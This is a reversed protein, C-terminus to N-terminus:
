IVDFVREAADGRALMEMAEGGMFGHVYCEGVLLYHNGCPRLCFPMKGGFLVCVIDGVNLVKPGLLFYGKATRAFVRHNSAGNAARSWKFYDGSVAVEHIASAADDPHRLVKTLYAAGNALWESSPIEHYPRTDRSATSICGNSLTQTYAFFASEGSVYKEELNFPGKGCVEHWLTEVALTRGSSKLPFEQEALPESLAEVVDLEIGSISLVLTSKNVSLKPMSTGHACHSSIPESLLYAQNGIDWNPVWSPLTNEDVARIQGSANNSAERSSPQKAHQITALTILSPDGTLARVAVDAYVQAVTKTYDAHLSELEKNGRLVSFHCLMAFVRDRPDSVRLHRARQLEYMLNFRNAHRSELPPEIFRQFVYKILDTQINFHKRLHYYDTFKM